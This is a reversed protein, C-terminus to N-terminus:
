GIAESIQQDNTIDLSLPILRADALERLPRTDRAAAYVRAAGRELREGVLARGIGRNAGTVLVTKNTIEM